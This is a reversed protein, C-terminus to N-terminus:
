GIVREWRPFVVQLRGGRGVPTPIARRSIVKQWLQGCRCPWIEGTTMNHPAHLEPFCVHTSTINDTGPDFM